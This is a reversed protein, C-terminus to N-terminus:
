LKGAALRSEHNQLIAIIPAILRDYQVGDPIMTMTKPDPIRTVMEPLVQQVDEAILGVFIEKRRASDGSALSNFTVPRLQLVKQAQALSLPQINTKYRQSSTSRLLNNSAANDLFANASSGTTGVGPVIVANNLAISGGKKIQFGVGTGFTSGPSDGTIAIALLGSVGDSNDIWDIIGSRGSATSFGLTMYTQTNATSNLFQTTNLNAANAQTKLLTNADAAAGIGIRAFQPTSGTQIGQVTDLQGSTVQLNGSVTSIFIGTVASM